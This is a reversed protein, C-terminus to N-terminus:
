DPPAAMTIGAGRDLSLAAGTLDSSEDSALFLITNAVAEPKGLQLRMKERAGEDMTAFLKSLTKQLLPTDAAHPEVSNCRINYGHHLCYVAVSRTFSDAAGKSTAYAANFWLPQNVVTSTVNVISGGGSKHIAPIAHKCGLFVGEVNVSQIARWQELTEDEIGAAMSIGANNVLVDLRGFRDVVTGILARWQDESTVDQPVFLCHQGLEAETERGLPENRDTIVVRAGEALLASATSKGIGSAGSTVICIKGSVRGM